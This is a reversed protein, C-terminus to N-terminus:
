SIQETWLKDKLSPVRPTPRSATKTNCSGVKRDLASGVLKQHFIKSNKQSLTQQDTELSLHVRSLLSMRNLIAMSLWPSVLFLGCYMSLSLLIFCTQLLFCLSHAEPHISSRKLNGTRTGHTFTKARLSEQIKEILEAFGKVLFLQLLM